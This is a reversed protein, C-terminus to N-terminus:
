TKEEMTDLAQVRMLSELPMFGFTRLSDDFWKGEENYIRYWISAEIDVGALLPVILTERARFARLDRRLGRCGLSPWTTEGNVEGFATGAGNSLVVGHIGEVGELASTVALAMSRTKAVLNGQAWESLNWMGDLIDARLWTSGSGCSQKAKKQLIRVTREWGKRTGGPMEFSTGQKASSQEAVELKSLRHDVVVTLRKEVSLRAAKEAATVLSGVDDESLEDSISGNFMVDYEFMIRLLDNSLRESLSVGAKMQDDAMVVFTEAKIEVGDLSASVDVPATPVVGEEVSVIAGLRNLMSALELQLFVHLRLENRMDARLSKRVRAFGQISSCEELCVAQRLMEGYAAAHFSAMSIESPLAHESNIIHSLWDGGLHREMVDIAWIGASRGEDCRSSDRMQERWYNWSRARILHDRAM